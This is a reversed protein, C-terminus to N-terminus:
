KELEAKLVRKLAKDNPSVRSAFRAVPIGNKGIIFKEFNWKVDGTGKPELNKACLLAYLPSRQKGNVDSKEFLEFSVNFQAKCFASIEDSSGPEQKGFQNCPFGLVVLGEDKYTQYLQELAKYQKTFGCKSAVNVVVVVNDKYKSLDVDNGDLSKLTGQWVGVSAPEDAVKPAVADDQLAAGDQAVVPNTVTVAVVVTLAIGIAFVLNKM